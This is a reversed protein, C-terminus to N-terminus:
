CSPFFNRSCVCRYGWKEKMCMAGLIRVFDLFQTFVVVKTEQNSAFWSIIVERVKELKAGPIDAAASAIWDTEEDEDTEINADNEVTSTSSAPFMAYKQFFSNKKQAQKEKKKKNKPAKPAPLVTTTESLAVMPQFNDISGCHAAETIEVNCILCTPNGTETQSNGERLRCYCEECYLHKCSTIIAEEPFMGCRPYNTRSLREVWQGNEHLETAFQHFKRALKETDGHVIRTLLGTDPERIEKNKENSAIEKTLEAPKGPLTFKRRLAILLRTIKSSPQEPNKEQNSIQILKQIMDETLMQKLMGQITLAHSSFM